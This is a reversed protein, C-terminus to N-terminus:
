APTAPPTEPADMKGIEYWDVRRTAVMVAGLCAFLLLAGLVLANSESVLLGYLASYLVM